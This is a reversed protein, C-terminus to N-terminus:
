LKYKLRFEELSSQAEHWLDELRSRVENGKGLDDSRTEFIFEGQYQAVVLKEILEPWNITGEFPWLHDDKDGRNDHIHTTDIADFPGSKSADKQLHGHGTDYCIGIDTVEAVRKFEQIRDITSIENPINEVMIKVGAFARIQAIVAYAYEFAVPTFKENPNGLHMVLYSPTVYDTLQLARKIEDIAYAREKRDPSLASVWIREEKGGGEIFPLHISPAPLANEGFWRGISRMLSRSHFDLHPRNCFLELREYGAKRISELLDLTVTSGRQIQTSIGFRM